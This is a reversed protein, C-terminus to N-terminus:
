NNLFQTIKIYYFSSYIVTTYLTALGGIIIIAYDSNLSTLLNLTTAPGYIVIGMGIFIRLVYYSMGLLRIFTSNFRIQFYEFVSLVKLKAFM